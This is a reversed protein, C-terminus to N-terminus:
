GFLRLIVKALNPVIGSFSPRFPLRVDIELFQNLRQIKNGVVGVRHSTGVLFYSCVVAVSTEVRSSVDDKIAYQLVTFNSDDSDKVFPHIELFMQLSAILPTEVPKNVM